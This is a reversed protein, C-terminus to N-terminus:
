ERKRNTFQQALTLARFRLDRRIAANASQQM